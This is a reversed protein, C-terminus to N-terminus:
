IKTIPAEFTKQILEKNENYAPRMFPRPKIKSTGFEIANAYPINGEVGVTGIWRGGQKVVSKKISAQLIGTDVPVGLVANPDSVRYEKTKGTSADKRFYRPLAKAKLEKVTIKPRRARATTWVINTILQMKQGVAQDIFDAKKLLGKTFKELDSSKITVFPQNSKM